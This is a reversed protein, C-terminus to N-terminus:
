DISQLFATLDRIDQDSLTGFTGYPPMLTQPNAVRADYIQRYVHADTYGRTKFSLLPPGGVGPQADGPLAHCAWCNGGQTNMAIKKGREIDGNLPETLEAKHPRPTPRKDEYSLSTWPTLDRRHANYTLKGSNPTPFPFVTKNKTAPDILWDAPLPESAWAASAALLGGLAMALVRPRHQPQRPFKFVSAM